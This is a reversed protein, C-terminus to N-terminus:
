DEPPGPPVPGSPALAGDEDHREDGQLPPCFVSLIHLDTHATLQHRDKPGVCYLMGPELKWSDGKTLDEVLGAGSVIYNAEWHHKYWLDMAAGADFHVDSFSFGLEDSKTLMRITRAKGNAVVIEHGAARMEDVRRIYMHRETLPVPGSAEYAGDEDHREDGRLAPCFISLLHVEEVAEFTHRDNPGVQYLDGPGVTWIEGSTLDTLKVRGSIIYNAEWHHKYWVRLATPPDAYAWNSHLSFGLGDAATLFRASRTRGDFMVLLWGAAEVDKLTRLFM